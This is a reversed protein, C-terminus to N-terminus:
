RLYNAQLQQVLIKSLRSSDLMLPQHHSLVILQVTIKLILFVLLVISIIIVVPLLLYHLRKSVDM